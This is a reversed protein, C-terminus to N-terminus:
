IEHSVNWWKMTYNMAYFKGPFLKETEQTQVQIEIYRRSYSAGDKSVETTAKRIEFGCKRAYERKDEVMPTWTQKSEVNVPQLQQVLANSIRILHLQRTKGSAPAYSDPLITSCIFRLLQDKVAGRGEKILRRELRLPSDLSGAVGLVSSQNLSGALPKMPNM